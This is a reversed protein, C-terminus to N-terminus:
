KSALAKLSPPMAGESEGKNAYTIPKRRKILNCRELQLKEQRMLTLPFHSGGINYEVGYKRMYNTVHPM